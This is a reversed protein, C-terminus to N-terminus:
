EELFLQIELERKQWELMNKDSKLVKKEDPNPHNLDCFGSVFFSAMKLM